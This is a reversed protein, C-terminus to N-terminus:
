AKPNRSGGLLMALREGGRAMVMRHNWLFLPRAIPALRNMWPRCTRVCWRYSLVTRAHQQELRCTGIGSLDGSVEAELLSPAEIRTIRLQFSLRYPLMTKWTYRWLSGQGNERGDELREVREVFPWWEPWREADTLVRWVKEAPADLHWVTVLEYDGSAM